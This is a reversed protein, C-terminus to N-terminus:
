GYEEELALYEKLSLPFEPLHFIMEKASFLNDM